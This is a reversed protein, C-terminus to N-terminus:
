RWVHMAKFLGLPQVQRPAPLAIHSLETHVM